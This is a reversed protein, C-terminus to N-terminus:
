AKEMATVKRLGTMILGIVLILTATSTPLGIEGLFNSILNLSEPSINGLLGILLMAFAVLYTKYGELIM